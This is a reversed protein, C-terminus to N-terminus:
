DYRLATIPDVKTARRAPLYSALTTVLAFVILVVAFTIPDLPTVGYLMKSLYGAAGVTALLGILIGALTLRASQALVSRMVEIRRAGLAMRV